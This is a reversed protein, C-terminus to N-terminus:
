RSSARTLRDNIAVGIGTNPIPMVAMGSYKRPDDLNKMIKFLNKSAEALDGSESLNEDYPIDTKGFAIFAEGHEPYPADIRVNISPAYHKKMMGPAMFITESDQKFESLKSSLAFEIDEKSVFGPRLISPRDSSLNLITSELGINCEGGDIVLPVKTGTDNMVMSYSTPSISMSTNASPAALPSGFKTLISLAIDNQPMRVAITPNGATVFTSINGEPNKPLIITLPLNKELWFYRALNQATDSFVAFKQAMEISDVHAILPNCSPRGKIQYIRQVAIDNTADAFIGYVTETPAIIVNGERLLSVAKELILKDMM